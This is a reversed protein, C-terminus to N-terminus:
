TFLYNTQGMDGHVEIEELQKLFINKEDILFMIYNMEKLLAILKQQRATNEM